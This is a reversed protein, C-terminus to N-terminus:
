RARGIMTFGSAPYTGPRVLRTSQEDWRRVMPVVVPPEVVFGCAAVAAEIAAKNSRVDAPRRIGRRSAMGSVERSSPVPPGPMKGMAALILASPLYTPWLRFLLAARDPTLWDARISLVLKPQEPPPAPVTAPVTVIRLPRLIRCVSARCGSGPTEVTLIRDRVLSRIAYRVAERTFGLAEAIGSMTASFVDDVAIQRVHRYVLARAAGNPVPNM